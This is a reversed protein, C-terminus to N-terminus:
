QSEEESVRRVAAAFDSVRVRSKGGLEPDKRFASMHQANLLVRGVPDVAFRGLGAGVSSTLGLKSPPYLFLMVREGVCYRQGSSWTGMWQSITLDEGPTAGRIAQEVHFTIAVSGIAQGHAPPRHAVAAVTGSFITGAARALQPFGIPNPIPSPRPLAIPPNPGLPEAPSRPSAPLIPIAFDPQPTPRDSQSIALPPLLVFSIALLRTWGSGRM